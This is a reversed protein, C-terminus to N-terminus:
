SSFKKGYYKEIFNMIIYSAILTIFSISLSYLTQFQLFYIGEELNRLIDAMVYYSLIVTLIKIVDHWLKIDRDIARSIVKGAFLVILSFAIYPIMSLLVASVQFYVAGKVEQATFVGNVVSIILSIISIIAAIVMITSNEWWKELKEDFNFGRVIMAGGIIMLISPAVYSTLGTIALLSSIFLIAGPVGLFLRSYRPENIIKKLYKSFLIYTEEVGRHQEVIVREIGAIKLRSQIIPIAKEDEPSDYVVIADEPGLRDIVEELEQSLKKQAELGGRQSGAIFVIEVDEGEKKMKKFINYAMVMSNFDSDSALSESAKTIAEYVRKDGVVPSEIGIVGLDDDIDVYIIITRAM